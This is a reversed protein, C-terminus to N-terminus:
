ESTGLLWGITKPLAMSHHDNVSSPIFVNRLLQPLINRVSTYQCKAWRQVLFLM